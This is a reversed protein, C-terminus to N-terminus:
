SLGICELCIQAAKRLVIGPEGRAIGVVILTCAAFLLAVRIVTMKM